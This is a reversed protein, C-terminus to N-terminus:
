LLFGRKQMFDVPHKANKQLNCKSCLLQINDDTNSGGLALPMIHDLHYGDGLYKKCCPCKGRQLEFLKKALGTSLKGGSQRKRARRNQQIIKYYEPRAAHRKADYSKVKDPNAAAWRAVADFAKDKNAYYWKKYRGPNKLRTKQQSAKVKEPNEARWKANMANKKERNASVWKAAAVRQCSKCSARLLDGKKGGVKTYESLPKTEGCKTCTKM